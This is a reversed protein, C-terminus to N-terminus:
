FKTKREREWVKLIAKRGIASIISTVTPWTAPIMFPATTTPLNTNDKDQIFVCMQVKTTCSVNGSATTKTRTPINFSEFLATVQYTHKWITHQIRSSLASHTCYMRRHTVKCFRRRPCTLSRSEYGRFAVSRECLDTTPGNSFAESQGVISLASVAAVVFTLRLTLNSEVREAIPRLMRITALM